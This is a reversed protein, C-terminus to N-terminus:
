ISFTLIIPFEVISSPCPIVSINKMSFEAFMIICSIVNMFLLKSSPPATIAVQLLLTCIMSQVNMFLVADNIPPAIISVKTSASTMLEVNSFLLAIASPPAIPNIPPLTFISPHMKVFLVESPEEITLPCAAVAFIEVLM